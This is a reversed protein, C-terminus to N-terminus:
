SWVSLVAGDVDPVPPFGPLPLPLPHSATRFLRFPLEAEVEPVPPSLGPLPLLINRSATRFLMVALAAEVFPHFATAFLIDDFAAGLLRRRSLKRFGPKDVRLKPISVREEDTVVVPVAALVMRFVEELFEKLLILLSSLEDTSLSSSSSTTATRPRLVLVLVLVLPPRLVLVLVLVLPLLPPLRLPCNRGDKLERGDDPERGDEFPPPGRGPRLRDVAPDLPTFFIPNDM